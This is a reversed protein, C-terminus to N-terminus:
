RVTVTCHNRQEPVNYDHAPVIVFIGKRDYNRIEEPNDEFALVVKRFNRRAFAAKDKVNYFVRGRGFGWSKLFVNTARRSSNDRATLYAVNFLIGALRTIWLMGYYPSAELYIKPCEKFTEPTVEPHYYIGAPRKGYRRDLVSLMDCVTNDLDFVIYPRLDLLKRAGYAAARFPLALLVLMLPTKTTHSKRKM